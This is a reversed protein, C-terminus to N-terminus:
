WLHFGCSLTRTGRTQSLVYVCLTPKTPLVLMLVGSTHGKLNVVEGLCHVGGWSLKQLSSRLEECLAWIWWAVNGGPWLRSPGLPETWFDCNSLFFFFSPVCFVAGACKELIRYPPWDLCSEPWCHPCWSLAPLFAFCLGSRVQTKVLASHHRSGAKWM